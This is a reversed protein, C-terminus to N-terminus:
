GGGIAHFLTVPALDVYGVQITILKAGLLLAVSGVVRVKISM